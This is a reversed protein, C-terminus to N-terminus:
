DDRGKRSHAQRGEWLRVLDQGLKKVNGEVVVVPVYLRKAKSFTM